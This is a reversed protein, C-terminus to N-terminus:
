MMFGNGIINAYIDHGDKVLLAWRIYADVLAADFEMWWRLFKHTTRWHRDSGV